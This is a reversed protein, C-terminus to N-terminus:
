PSPEPIGEPAAPRRAPRKSEQLTLSSQQYFHLNDIADKSRAYVDLEALPKLCATGYNETVYDRFTEAEALAHFRFTLWGMIGPPSVEQEYVQAILKDASDSM